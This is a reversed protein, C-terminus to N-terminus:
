VSPAGNSRLAPKMQGLQTDRGLHTTANKRGTMWDSEGRREELFDLGDRACGSGSKAVTEPPAEM